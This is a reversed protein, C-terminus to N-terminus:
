VAKMAPRCHLLFCYCMPAYVSFEEIVNCEKKETITTFMYLDTVLIELKQTFVVEM